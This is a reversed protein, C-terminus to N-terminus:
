NSMQSSLGGVAVFLWAIYLGVVLRMVMGLRNAFAHMRKVTQEVTQRGLSDVATSFDATDGYIGIEIVTDWQLIGVDFVDRLSKRGLNVRRVMRRIKDAVYPPANRQTRELATKLPTGAGMMAALGVLFAAGSIERYVSWPPFRDMATRVPGRWRPLSWFSAVMLTVLLGAVYPGQHVTMQSFVYFWHAAGQWQEPPMTRAIQPVVSLAVYVMTAALMLVQMVPEMLGTILESRIRSRALAVSGAAALATELRGSQEGAEILILEDGSVWPRMAETFTAGREMRRVVEGLFVARHDGRREAYAQQFRKLTTQLPVGNKTFVVLREYLAVRDEIGLFMRAFMRNIDLAM